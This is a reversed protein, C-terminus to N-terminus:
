KGHTTSMTSHSLLEGLAELIGVLCCAELVLRSLCHLCGGDTSKLLIM